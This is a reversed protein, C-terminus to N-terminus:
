PRLVGKVLVPLHDSVHHGSVLRIDLHKHSYIDLKKTFIYDIRKDINEKIDFGNFTGTPGEHKQSSSVMTDNLKKTILQIADSKPLANFDGMLITPENLSNLNNIQELILRSSELRSRQGIHDFHTNFVWFRTKSVKDEFYGYTCVRELAADWGISVKEPTKSLWFTSQKLLKYKKSKYYIACFEGKIKGDDRGVGIYNYNPLNTDIYEVQHLLGEQIGIFSPSSTELLKVLKKKRLNWNNTVDSKNDYKINYSIIAGLTDATLLNKM